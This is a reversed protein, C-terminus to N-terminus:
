RESRWSPADMDLVEGGLLRDEVRKDWTQAWDRPKKNTTLWLWKFECRDLLQCLRQAPIGTRFKDTETGIDDVFVMNAAGVDDMWAAFAENDTQEPTGITAWKAIVIGPISLTSGPYTEWRSM